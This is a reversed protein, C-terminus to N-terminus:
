WSVQDGLAIIAYYEIRGYLDRNPHILKIDFREVHPPKVQDLTPKIAHNDWNIEFIVDEQQPKLDYEFYFVRYPVPLLGAPTDQEAAGMTTRSRVVQDRCMRIEDNYKWMTGGKGEGTVPNYEASPQTLDMHRYIIWHGRQPDVGNGFLITHFEKRLDIEGPSLNVDGLGPLSPVRTNSPWMNRAM